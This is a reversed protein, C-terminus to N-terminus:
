TKGKLSWAQSSIARNLRLKHALNRGPSDLTGKASRVMNKVKLDEIAIFDCEMVFTTTTKEM